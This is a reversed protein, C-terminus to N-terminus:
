SFPADGFGPGRLILALLLCLFPLSASLRLGRGSRQLPLPPPEDPPARRLHPWVRSLPLTRLSADDRTPLVSPLGSPPPPCIRNRCRPGPGFPVGAVRRSERPRLRRGHRASIRAGTRSAPPPSALGCPAVASAPRRPSRDTQRKAPNSTVPRHGKKKAVTTVVRERQSKGLKTTGKRQVTPKRTFLYLCSAFCCVIETM